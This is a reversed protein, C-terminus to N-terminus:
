SAIKGFSSREKIALLFTFEKMSPPNGSKKIEKWMVEGKKGLIKYFLESGLYEREEIFIWYWKGAM